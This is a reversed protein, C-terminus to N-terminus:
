HPRRASEVSSSTRISVDVRELQCNGSLILQRVSFERDPTSPWNWHDRFPVPHLRVWDTQQGDVRLGAVCMTEDLDQTLVPSAKVLVVVKMQENSSTGMSNM